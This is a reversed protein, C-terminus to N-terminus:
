MAARHSKPLTECLIPQRKLIREEPIWWIVPLLLLIRNEILKILTDNEKGFEANHFDSVVVIKFHNFAQPLRGSAVTYHTVGVTANGWVTWVAFIVVAISILLLASKKRNM